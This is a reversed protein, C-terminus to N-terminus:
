SCSANQWRLEGEDRRAIAQEAIREYNSAVRHMMERATADNMQEAVVRTEYARRRWHQVDDLLNSPM